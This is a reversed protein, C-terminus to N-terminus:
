QQQQLSAPTDAEASIKLEEEIAAILWAAQQRPVFVTADEDHSDSRQRIAIDGYQNTYVAIDGYNRVVHLDPANWDFENNTAM